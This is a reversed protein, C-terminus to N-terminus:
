FRHSLRRERSRGFQIAKALLVILVVNLLSPRLFFLLKHTTSTSVAEKWPMRKPTPAPPAQSPEEPPVAPAQRIVRSSKVDASADVLVALFLSLILALSICQFKM